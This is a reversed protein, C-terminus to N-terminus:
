RWQITNQDAKDIFLIGDLHDIEHQMVVSAMRDLELTFPKGRQDQAKVTIRDPRIVHAYLGPISLCGEETVVSGESSVIEPNIFVTPKMLLSQVIVVRKTLGIQNAAIGLGRHIQMARMMDKIQNSLHKGFKLVPTSPTRLIPDPIRRIRDNLKYYQEFEKPVEIGCGSVTLLM